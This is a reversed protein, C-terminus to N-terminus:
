SNNLTGPMDAFLLDTAEPDAIDVSVINKSFKLCKPDSQGIDKLEQVTMQLFADHSRHPNLIAAQARRLSIEFQNKNTLVPGFVHTRPGPLLVGKDDYEIRLSIQCSWTEASSSM